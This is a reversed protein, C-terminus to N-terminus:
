LISATPADRRRSSTPISAFAVPICTASTCSNGTNLGIRMLSRECTPDVFDAQVAEMEHLLKGIPLPETFRAEVCASVTGGNAKSEDSKWTKAHITSVFIPGFRGLAQTTLVYDTDPLLAPLIVHGTSVDVTQHQLHQPKSVPSAFVSVYMVGKKAVDKGIWSLLLTNHSEYSWHFYRRLSTDGSHTSEREPSVEMPTVLAVVGKQKTPNAFIHGLLADHINRYERTWNGFRLVELM